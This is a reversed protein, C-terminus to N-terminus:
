GNNEGLAWGAFRSRPWPNDMWSTDPVPLELCEKMTLLGNVLRHNSIRGRKTQWVIAGGREIAEAIALTTRADQAVYKLVKDQDERSGTAWMEVAKQGDMEAMKQEQLRLGIGLAKMGVMFGREALMQFAPDYHSLALDRLNDFVILNQCEVALVRLDFGLSNIGIIDFGDSARMILYNALRCVEVPTMRDARRGDKGLASSWLLPKDDGSGMTAACTVGLAYDDGSEPAAEVTEIDFALWKRKEDM